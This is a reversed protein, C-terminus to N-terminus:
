KRLHSRSFKVQSGARCVEIKAQKFTETLSRRMSSALIQGRVRPAFDGNARGSAEVGRSCKAPFRQLMEHGFVIIRDLGQAQRGDVRQFGDLQLFSDVM